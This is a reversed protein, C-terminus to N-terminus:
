VCRTKVNENSDLYNIRLTMFFIYCIKTTINEYCLKIIDRRFTQVATGRWSYNQTIHKYYFVNRSYISSIDFDQTPMHRKNKTYHLKLYHSWEIKFKILYELGTIHKRDDFNFDTTNRFSITQFTRQRIPHAIKHFGVYKFSFCLRVLYPTAGINRSIEFIPTKGSSKKKKFNGSSLPLHWM